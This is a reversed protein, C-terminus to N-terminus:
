EPFGEELYAFGASSVIARIRRAMVATVYSELDDIAVFRWELLEEVPLRIGSAEEPSLVGGLFVFRLADGRVGEVPRRYDVSILRLPVDAMGLEESIERRCAELPSEGAEVAGGPLEWPDKYAPKVLLVRGLEDRFICGSGVQMRHLSDYFAASYAPRDSASPSM